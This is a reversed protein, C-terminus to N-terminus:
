AYMESEPNNEQNRCYDLKKLIVGMQNKQYPELSKVMAKLKKVQYACKKKEDKPHGKLLTESIYLIDRIGVTYFIRYLAVQSPAFILCADTSLTKDLFEDAGKRYREVNEVATSRTKIDIFFGELPRYPNHVTLHYHLKDMLLLEFSLITNAYVERDGKLNGVFQGISVNFEEVKCALYVCTLMIDKPHYDMASNNIYFRKFYCLATGLVYRPMPPQFSNCFEKLVYEFHRCIM